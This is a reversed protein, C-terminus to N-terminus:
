GSTGPRLSAWGDVRVRQWPIAGVRRARQGAIEELLKWLFDDRKAPDRKSSTRHASLALHLAGGNRSRIAAHEARAARVQSIHARRAEGTAM